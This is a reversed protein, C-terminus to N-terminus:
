GGMGEGGVGERKQRERKKKIGLLGQLFDRRGGGTEGSEGGRVWDESSVEDDEDGDEDEDEDESETVWYLGM